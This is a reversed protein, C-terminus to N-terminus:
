HPAPAAMPTMFLVIDARKVESLSRIMQLRSERWVCLLIADDAPPRSTVADQVYQGIMYRGNAYQIRGRTGPFRSLGAFIPATLTAPSFTSIGFIGATADAFSEEEMRVVLHVEPSRARAGLAIELNTTDSNTLALVASANEINCMDLAGDKSADGTLLDVDRERARRVLDPDPYPEIVIIRKGAVTLLNLAATGLKGGGCIIVHHRARIRRLGQTAIWQARTLASAVYGIFISTFVIGGLMAIIAGATILTGRQAVQVEGFGVNTMTAVVYFASATLTKGLVFHFYCYSASFFLIGAVVSIRFIPNTRRFASIIRHPLSRRFSNEHQCNNSSHLAREENKPADFANISRFLTVIDNRNIIAFSPPHHQIDLAIIRAFLREEAQGVTLGVIHLDRASHRVFGVLPGMAEPHRLAFFCGQDLASAAFTAASSSHLSLAKCDPLVQELKMGLTVIYERLVIRIRPNLNRAHLTISLNLGDDSSLALLCEAEMVGAALLSANTDTDLSAFSVAFSEFAAHRKADLSWLVRVHYDSTATLEACVQETLADDGMLLLLPESNM